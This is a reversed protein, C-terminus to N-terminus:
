ATRWVRLGLHQREIRHRFTLTMGLRGAIVRAQRECTDVNVCPIFFSSGVALEEWPVVIRLGDPDLDNLKKVMETM